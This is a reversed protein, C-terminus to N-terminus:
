NNGRGGRQQRGRSNGRGNGPTNDSQNGWTAPYTRWQDRPIRSFESPVSRDDIMTFQGSERPSSYWRNGSYVYYNGGYRFVDYNPREALPVTEVRTGGIGAWHPTGGFSVRMTSASNYSGRSDRDEWSTPYNRWHNRPVGRIESPVSRDDILMFRGRGRRSMYWRGDANNYAYYSRGYQFMDYNTREGQRIERVQTGPVSVWHPSRGFNIQLYPNPGAHVPTAIGLTMGLALLPGLVHMKSRINM